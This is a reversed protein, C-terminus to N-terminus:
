SRSLRWHIFYRGRTIPLVALGVVLLSATTPEPIPEFRLGDVVLFDGHFVVKRVGNPNEIGIFNSAWDSVVVPSISHTELQSSNSDFVTMEIDSAATVFAGVRHVAFPFTFEVNALENEGDMGLFATGFPVDSEDDVGGQEGVGFGGEGERLFDGITATGIEDEADGPVPNPVPRTLTIGSVFTYPAVIGPAFSDGPRYEGVNPGLSLGEFSESIAAPGFSDPGIQGAHITVCVVFFLSAIATLSRWVLTLPKM